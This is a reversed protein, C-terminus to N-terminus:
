RDEGAPGAQNGARRGTWRDTQRRAHRRGAWRGAAWRKGPSHIQSQLLCGKSREKIHKRAMVAQGDAGGGDACRRPRDELCCAQKKHIPSSLSFSTHSAQGGKEKKKGRFDLVVGRKPRRGRGFKRITGEPLNEAERRRSGERLSKKLLWVFV